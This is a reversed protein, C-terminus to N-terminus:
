LGLKERAQSLSRQVQEEVAKYLSNGHTDMAVILPGFNRARLVWLAEPMGLDLWHVGRVEEIGSAALVAAGGTLALYVCGHERMAELTPESMGGKGIIVAPRFAAIFRPELSNM